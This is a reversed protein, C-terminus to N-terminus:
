GDDVEEAWESRRALRDFDGEYASKLQIRPVSLYPVLPNMYATILRELIQQAEDALVDVGAADSAISVDEFNFKVGVYGLGTVEAPPLDHFQGARAILAQLPLQQEFGANIEKKTPIRGTKFDLIAYTGDVRRDIRDAIATLTFTDEGIKIPLDGRIESAALDIQDQRHQRAAC